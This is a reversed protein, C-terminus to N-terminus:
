DGNKAPEDKGASRRRRGPLGLGVVSGAADDPEGGFQIGNDRGVVGNLLEVIAKLEDFPRNPDRVGTIQKEAIYAAIDDVFPCRTGLGLRKQGSDIGPRRVLFAIEDARVAEGNVPFSVQDDHLVAVPANGTHGQCTPVPHNQSVVEFPLSEVVRIIENIM